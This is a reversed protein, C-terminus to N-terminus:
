GSIQECINNRKERADDSNNDPFSIQEDSESNVNLHPLEENTYVDSNSRIFNHLVVCAVVFYKINNMNTINLFKLKRFKEKLIGFAQEIHVRSSSLSENFKRQSPTLNGYNKFPVMLYSKLPYASDGVLHSNM